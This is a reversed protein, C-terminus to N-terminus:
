KDCVAVFGFDKLGVKGEGEKWPAAAIIVGEPNSASGSLGRLGGAVTFSSFSSRHSVNWLCAVSITIVFAPLYAPAKNPPTENANHFTKNLYFFLSKNVRNLSM